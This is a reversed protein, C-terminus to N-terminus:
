AFRAKYKGILGNYLRIASYAKPNEDCYGKLGVLFSRFSSQQTQIREVMGNDALKGEIPTMGNEDDRVISEMVDGRRIRDMDQASRFMLITKARHPCEIIKPKGDSDFGYCPETRIAHEQTEALGYLKDSSMKMLQENTLLGNRHSVAEIVKWEQNQAYGLTFATAKPPEKAFGKTTKDFM